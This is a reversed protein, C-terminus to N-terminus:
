REQFCQLKNKKLNSCIDEDSNNIKSLSITNKLQVDTAGPRFLNLHGIAIQLACFIVRTKCLKKCRLNVKPPVTSGLIDIQIKEGPVVSRCSLKDNCYFM